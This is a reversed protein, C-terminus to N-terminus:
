EIKKMELIESKLIILGSSPDLKEYPLREEPGDFIIFIAKDDEKVLWGIAKRVQPKFLSPNTNRFLVHDLYKVYILNPDENM